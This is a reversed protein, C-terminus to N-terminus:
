LMLSRSRRSCRPDAAGDRSGRGGGGAVAMHYEVKEGPCQPLAVTPRSLYQLGVGGNGGDARVSGGGAQPGVPGGRPYVAGAHNGRPPQAAEGPCNPNAAHSQTFCPPSGNM